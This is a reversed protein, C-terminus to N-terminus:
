FNCKFTVYVTREVERTLAPTSSAFEPHAEDFLNRGVIAFEYTKTPAWALRLDGTVYSPTYPHPLDDVYRLYTDLRLHYPLDMGSHFICSAGPDNTEGKANNLDHGGETTHINEHLLSVSGDLQWWDTVRWKTTIGAGYTDGALKNEITIQGNPLPEVSRLHRYDNYYGALDFSLTSTAKIRYGLEYAILDESGFDENAILLPMSFAPNPSVLNQDIRTPTRVARSVAAWLTQNSDPMWTLRGTPQIEFGSFSNYEFKSGATFYFKDPVIHWEDQVYGSLLHETESDPIFALTPGLNGINDHSLRYNGGLVIYHDGYRLSEQVEFDVTNREEEFVTPILRYTRDWYAQFMLSSDTDFQHTWRGLVNEGDLDINGMDLQDFNGSYFDGQVTLHDDPNLKSDVRFGGQTMQGDDEDGDGELPLGEREEHTVYVRYFTDDGIKGGYRAGFFGDEEFGGGGYFLFGQTQEASKTLINIVGNVANAGWLTAGPGRIIEIQELDPLFTQQADWFVGSFLPTYLSRGDMLVQVKNSITNDFGRVSVAWSHGDIQAVQVETGLRLADPLTTVGAHEIDDATIVDVASSTEWLNEPRRSASTIEVDVLAELPLKKLDSPSSSSMLPPPADLDLDGNVPTVPALTLPVADGNADVDPFSSAVTQQALAHAAMGLSVILAFLCAHRLVRLKSAM